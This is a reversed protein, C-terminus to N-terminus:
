HIKFWENQALEKLCSNLSENFRIPMWQGNHRMAYVAYKGEGICDLRAMGVEFFPSLARPGPCAYKEMLYFRGGHWKSYVDTVYNWEKHPNPLSSKLEKILKESFAEIRRKENEPPTRAKPSFVWAYGKGM